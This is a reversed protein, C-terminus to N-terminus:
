AAEGVRHLRLFNTTGSVQIPLSGLIIVMDGVKAFEEQQIVVDVQSILADMDEKYESVIPVVGWFLASRCYTNANPTFALIPVQPRDKSVLRATYGSRTFAVIAGVSPNVAVIQRAAYSISYSYETITEMETSHPPTGLGSEAEVVIRDMMAVAELPYDGIATEGSLMVADTGDLVANAVDSAEARTPRPSRVMSELMQTATIVPVHHPKAMQIIKKQWMPVKELSLEVGLDGRAIMVGDAVSLIDDLNELAQQTELKAIVPTDLSRQDIFDKVERVDGADRVFSLAVYDVGHKLGTELDTRDKETFSGISLRISPLNLGQREVLIGGHVVVCRVESETTSSVELEIRGDALLISDGAKVDMPLDKYTTSIVHSNGVQLNTTINLEAGTDLQVQGEELQGIRLKPGQLDQLIALPTRLEEAARRLIAMVRLHGEATGHSFNLRAVNMGRKLLGRIMEESQTAPGITCIIKTKRM